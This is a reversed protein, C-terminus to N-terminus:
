EGGGCRRLRLLEGSGRHLNVNRQNNLSEVLVLFLELGIWGDEHGSLIPKDSLEAGEECIRSDMDRSPLASSMEDPGDGGRACGGRGEEEPDVIGWLRMRPRWRLWLAIDKPGRGRDGAASGSTGRKGLPRDRSARVHCNAHSASDRSSSVVCASFSALPDATAAILRRREVLLVVRWGFM